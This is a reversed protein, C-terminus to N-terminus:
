QGINWKLIILDDIGIDELHCGAMLNEMIIRYATTMRICAECGMMEGEQNIVRITM